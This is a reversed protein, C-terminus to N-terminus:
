RNIAREVAKDASAYDAALLDRETKLEDELFKHRCEIDAFVDSWKRVYMKCNDQSFILGKDQEGHMKNTGIEGEIYGSTNFRNGVLIFDWHTNEGNFRDDSFITRQYKKIQSVEKEGLLISPRKLEVVLNRIRDNEVSTRCLFLDMETNKDPSKMTVDQKEGDHDRLIHLYESLAKEFKDETSAVLNYQEGFVWFNYDLIKQLHDPELANLSKNFVVDKLADVTIHRDQIMKITHIISDLKNAKLLNALKDQEQPDLRVVSDIITYIQDRRDSDLLANLLHVFTKKQEVSSDGTSFIKPQIQYVGKILAKLENNRPIEWDNKVEPIIKTKEYKDVLDDAMKQLHPSRMRRLYDNFESLLYKFEDDRQSNFKQDEGKLTTQKSDTKTDYLFNDFYDSTIYASHYFKDGKNNLLTTAKYNENGSSDILYYRSFEKNLKKKWHIYKVKFRTSTEAHVIEEDKTDLIMETHDLAKGNFSISFGKHKFLELFWCFEQLIYQKIATDMAGASLDRIGKFLVATSTEAGTVEVTESRAGSYSHLDSSSIDIDYKYLKGNKKYTTTWTATNAFTFFTLRGVGNKGHLLSHHKSDVKKLAKESEHFPKFKVALLDQAIGKGNDTITIHKLSGLADEEYSIDVKTADADFGNWIYEALSEPASYANLISKVGDGGLQIEDTATILNSPSKIAVSSNM